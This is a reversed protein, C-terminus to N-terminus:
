AAILPTYFYMGLKQNKLPVISTTSRKKDKLSLDWPQMNVM